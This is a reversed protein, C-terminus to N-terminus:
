KLRVADAIVYYETYNELDLVRSVYMGSDLLRHSYVAKCEGSNIADLAYLKRDYGSLSGLTDITSSSKCGLVAGFGFTALFVLLLLKKM